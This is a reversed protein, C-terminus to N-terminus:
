LKGLTTNGSLLQQWQISTLPQHSSGVINLKADLQVTFPIAQLENGLPGNILISPGDMAMWTDGAFGTKRLATKLADIDQDLAITVLRVNGSTQNSIKQITTLTDYCPGCWSAWLYIVVGKKNFEAFTRPQLQLDVLSINEIKDPTKQTANDNEVMLWLFTAIFLACLSFLPKIKFEPHMRKPVFKIEVPTNPKM